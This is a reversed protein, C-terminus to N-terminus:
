HTKYHKRSVTGSGPFRPWSTRDGGSADDARVTGADSEDSTSLSVTGRIIQRRSLCDGSGRVYYILSAIIM